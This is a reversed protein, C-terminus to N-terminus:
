KGGPPWNQDFGPLIPDETIDKKFLFTKVAVAAGVAAAGGGIWLWTKNGKKPPTPDKTGTVDAVIKQAIEDASKESNKQFEEFRVKREDSAVIKSTEIEVLRTILKAEGISYSIIGVLGANGGKTKIKAITEEDFQWKNNEGYRAEKHVDTLQRRELIEISRSKYKFLANELSRPFDIRKKEFYNKGERPVGETNFDFVVIRYKNPKQYQQAFAISVGCHLCLIFVM